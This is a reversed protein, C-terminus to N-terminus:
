RTWKKLPLWECVSLKEWANKVSSSFNESAAEHGSTSCPFPIVSTWDASILVSAFTIWFYVHFNVGTAEFPLIVSNEWDFWVEPRLDCKRRDRLWKDSPVKKPFGIGSGGGLCLRLAFENGGSKSGSNSTDFVLIASSPLFHRWDFGIGAWDGRLWLSM